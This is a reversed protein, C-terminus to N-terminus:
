YVAESVQKGECYLIAQHRFCNTESFYHAVCFGQGSIEQAAPIKRVDFFLRIEDCLDAYYAQTNTLISVM